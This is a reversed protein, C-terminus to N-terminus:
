LGTAGQCDLPKQRLWVAVAWALQPADRATRRAFRPLDTASFCIETGSAAPVLLARQGSACDFGLKLLLSPVDFVQHREFGLKVAAIDTGSLSTHLM